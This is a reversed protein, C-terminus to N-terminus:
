GEFAGDSAFDEVGECAVARNGVVAIQPWCASGFVEGEGCGGGVEADPWCSDAFEFESSSGVVFEGM